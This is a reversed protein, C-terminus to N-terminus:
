SLGSEPTETKIESAEMKRQKLELRGPTSRNKIEAEGVRRQNLELEVKLLNLSRSVFM